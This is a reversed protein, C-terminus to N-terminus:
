KKPKQWENYVENMWVMTYAFWLWAGLYIWIAPAIAVATVILYQFWLNTFLKKM